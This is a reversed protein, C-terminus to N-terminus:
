RPPKSDRGGHIRPCPVDPKRDPYDFLWIYARVGQGAGHSAIQKAGHRASPPGFHAGDVVNYCGFPAKAFDWGLSGATGKLMQFYLHSFPRDGWCAGREDTGDICDFSFRALSIVLARRRM